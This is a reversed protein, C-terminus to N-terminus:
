GCSQRIVTNNARHGFSQCSYYASDFRTVAFCRRKFTWASAQNGAISVHVVIRPELDLM